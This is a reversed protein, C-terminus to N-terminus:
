WQFSHTYSYGHKLPPSTLGVYLCLIIIGVSLPNHKMLYFSTEKYDYTPQVRLLQSYEHLICVDNKGNLNVVFEKKKVGFSLFYLSIACYESTEKYDYTPQVRLVHQAYEHLICVDNKGKLNLVFEKKKIGGGGGGLGPRDKRQVDCTLIHTGKPQLLIHSFYTGKAYNICPLCLYM